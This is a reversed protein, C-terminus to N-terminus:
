SHLSEKLSHMGKVRVFLSKSSGHGVSLHFVNPSEHCLNRKPSQLSAFVPLFFFCLHFGVKLNLREEKKECEKLSHSSSFGLHCDVIGGLTITSLM